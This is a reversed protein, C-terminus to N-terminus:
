REKKRDTAEFSRLSSIHFFNQIWFRAGQSRPTPTRENTGEGKVVQFRTKREEEINKAEKKGMMTGNGEQALRGTQEKQM